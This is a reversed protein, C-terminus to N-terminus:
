ATDYNIFQVREGIAFTGVPLTIGTGTVIPSATGLGFGMSGHDALSLGSYALSLVLVGTRIIRSNLM